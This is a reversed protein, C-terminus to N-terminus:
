KVFPQKWIINKECFKNRKVQRIVVAKAIEEGEASKMDGLDGFYLEGGISDELANEWDELEM